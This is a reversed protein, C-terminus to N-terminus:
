KIRVEMCNMCVEKDDTLVWTHMSFPDKPCKTTFENLLRDLNEIVESFKDKSNIM